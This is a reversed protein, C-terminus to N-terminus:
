ALSQKLMTELEAKTLVGKRLVMPNQPNTLDLVTSPLVAELPGADIVLDPEAKSEKLFGMFAELNNAPASDEYRNASTAILPVDVQRLLDAAFRSQPMRLAITARTDAVEAPVIDKKHLIVSVPGPWIDELVKETWLDIYAYRRASAHNKILLIFGKDRPRRKISCVREAVKPDLANGGIGYVTDTPYVIVGGSKVVKVAEFLVGPFTSDNLEIVRM